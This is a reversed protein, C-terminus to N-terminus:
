QLLIKKTTTGQKNTIRFLYVGPPCAASINTSTTGRPFKMNRTFMLKGTLNVVEILVEESQNAYYAFPINRSSPTTIHILHSQTNKVSSMKVVNSYRFYTGPYIAKVRYYAAHDTMTDKADYDKGDYSNTEKVFHDQIAHWVSGDSSKELVYKYVANSRSTWNLEVNKADKSRANLVTNTFLLTTTISSQTTFVSRGCADMIAVSINTLDRTNPPTYTVNQSSADPSFTGGVSSSWEITYQSLDVSPPVSLSINVPVNETLVLPLNNIALQVTAFRDHAVNFSYNFFARQAAVRDATAGTSSINHGAEYMVMGRTPDGFGRGYVLPSVPGLSRVPIDVNTADSVGLTTSARWNSTLGPMFVRESGSNFAADATGVFQMIANGHDNYTYPPSPSNSHSGYHLLGTTTLFNMKITMTPDTLQELVSVAHCAAWLNGKHNLNWYYLNNHTAWTPDAHPMVFIDDCAGLEAPTKWGTSSSGGYASSSIGANNFFNVAISGNDKDLTWRPANYFTRAVTSYIDSVSTAGVVGLGNWSAIVSDITPTRYEFPIVFVGGRYTVGNHIFDVGDKVKSTNIVWKIPIHYQKLLVYILGYPKLGSAITQGSMNILYSGSRLTDAAKTTQYLLIITILSLFLTKKMKM